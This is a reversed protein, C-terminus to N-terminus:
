KVVVSKALNRPKDPDLGRLVALQYALIQMPIIHTIPNTVGIEPVKIFYDFIDNNTPGVGIIYGGRSKIEMANSLINKETNKSFFVIAPTGKEILALPGHKLDGGAFGETHIYSVEKLKLAAEMATPYMLGRGITFIHEKNKLKKALIKIQKRTNLATLNFVINYLSKLQDKGENIKGASGYALILLIAVQATYAKTSLVCIEPGVKTYMVDDSERDLSSGKVNVISLVRSGMEKATRVAELVDATEGSQSVAVVLSNENLFHKFYPFESGSVVNVHKKAIESFLYSATQCAYFSTGSAVFFIGNANNIKDIFKNLKKEDQNISEQITETQEMIEKLMFHEFNGKEIQEASWDITSLKRKVKKDEFINYFNLKGDLSIMDGDKMYIVNKTHDLFAPIDSAPFFENEGVGIVLPAGRRAAIMKREEKNLILLAYQGELKKLTTKTAEKFNKGNKMEDEILHAIIESDTESKIKHGSLSKKLEQYNEIIGNHVLVINGSCDTHPHSNEKTVGGHTAWRTHGLGISGPLDMLNIRNHIDAIKGIDKKIHLNGNNMTAIGASDYGRYELKKLGNFIIPAAQKDGVYGIIGCM